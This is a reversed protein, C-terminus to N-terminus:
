VRTNRVKESITTEATSPLTDLVRSRDVIHSGSEQTQDITARQTEPVRTQQTTAHQTDPQIQSYYQQEEQELQKLAEQDLEFEFDVEEDSM